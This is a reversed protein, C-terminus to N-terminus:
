QSTTLCIGGGDFVRESWHGSACCLCKRTSAIPPRGWLIACPFVRHGEVPTSVRVAVSWYRGRTPDSVAQAREVPCTSVDDDAALSAVVGVLQSSSSLAALLPKMLIERACFVQHAGGTAAMTLHLAVLVINLAICHMRAFECRPHKPCLNNSLSPVSDSQHVTDACTDRQLDSRRPLLLQRLRRM